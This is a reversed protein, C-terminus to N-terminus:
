NNSIRINTVIRAIIQQYLKKKPILFVFNVQKICSKHIYYLHCSTPATNQRLHPM